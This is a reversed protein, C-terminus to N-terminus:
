GFHTVRDGSCGERANGEGGPAWGTTVPTGWALPGGWRVVVTVPGGLNHALPGGVAWLGGLPCVAALGEGRSLRGGHGDGVAWVGDGDRSGAPASRGGGLSGVAGGRRWGGVRGHRGWGGPGGAHSRWWVGLRRWGWNGRGRSRWWGWVWNAVGGGWNHWWGGGWHGGSARGVWAAWNCSAGSGLEGGGTAEDGGDETEDSSELRMLM